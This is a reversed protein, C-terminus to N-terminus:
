CVDDGRAEVWGGSTSGPVIVTRSCRSNWARNLIPSLTGMCALCPSGKVFLVIFALITTLMVVEVLESGM